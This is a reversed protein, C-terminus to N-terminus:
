DNMLVILALTYSSYKVKPAVKALSLISAGAISTSVINFRKM